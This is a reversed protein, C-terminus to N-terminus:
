RVEEETPSVVELENNSEAQFDLDLLPLFDDMLSLDTLDHPLPCDFFVQNQIDKLMNLIDKRNEFSTDSKMSFM